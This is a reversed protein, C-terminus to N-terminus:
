TFNKDIADTQLAQLLGSLRKANVGLDSYGVVSHSYACLFSQDAGDGEIAHIYVMDPYRMRKTRVCYAAKQEANDRWLEEGSLTGDVYTAAKQFLTQRPLAFAPSHILKDSPAGGKLATGPPLLFAENPKGTTELELVSAFTQPDPAKFVTELLARLM